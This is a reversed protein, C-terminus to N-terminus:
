TELETLQGPSQPGTLAGDGRWYTAGWGGASRRDPLASSLRGQRKASPARASLCVLPQSSPRVPGTAWRRSFCFSNLCRWPETRRTEGRREKAAYCDDRFARSREPSNTEERHGRETGQGRDTGVGTTQLWAPAMSPLYNSKNDGGTTALDPRRADAGSLSSSM